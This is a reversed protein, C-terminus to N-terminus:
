FHQQDKQKEKKEDQATLHRSTLHKRINLQTHNKVKM